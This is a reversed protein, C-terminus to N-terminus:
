HMFNNWMQKLDAPIAQPIHVALYEFLDADHGAMMIGAFMLAAIFAALACFFPIIVMMFAATPSLQHRSILARRSLELGWLWLAPALPLIWIFIYPINSHTILQFMELRSVDKECFLQCAWSFYSTWLFVQLFALLLLIPIVRLPLSSSYLGIPIDVILIPILLILFLLVLTDTLGKTEPMNGFYSSPHRLTGRITPLLSQKINNKSLYM